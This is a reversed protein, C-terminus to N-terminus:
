RRRLVTINGYAVSPPLLPALTEEFITLLDRAEKSKLITDLRNNLDTIGEAKLKQWLFVNYLLLGSPAIEVADLGLADAQRRMGEATETAYFSGPNVPDDFYPFDSGDGARIGSADVHERSGFDFMVLGGQKTVRTKEVLVRRWDSFHQIFMRSVVLDFEQDNAPIAFGDGRRLEFQRSGRERALVDLMGQSIDCAVVEYGLDHLTIAVLGSGCGLDLIRAGPAAYRQIRRIFLDERIVRFLEPAKVTANHYNEAAVSSDWARSKFERTPV